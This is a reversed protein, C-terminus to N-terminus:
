AKSRAAVPAPAVASRCRRRTSKSRTESEENFRWATASRRSTGLNLSVSIKLPSSHLGSIYSIETVFRMETLSEHTSKPKASALSGWKWHIIMMKLDNEWRKGRLVAMKETPGMNEGRREGLHADWLDGTAGLMEPGNGRLQHHIGAIGHEGSLGGLLQQEQAGRPLQFSGLQHHVSAQLCIM